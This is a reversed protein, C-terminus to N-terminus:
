REIILFLYKVIITKKGWGGWDLREQTAAPQRPTDM